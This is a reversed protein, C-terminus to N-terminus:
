IGVQLISHYAQPMHGLVCIDNLEGALLQSLYLGDYAPSFVACSDDGTRPNKKQAMPALAFIGNGGLKLDVSAGYLVHAVPIPFATKLACQIISGTGSLRRLEIVSRFRIQYGNGTGLRRFTRMVPRKFEQLFPHDFVCLHM